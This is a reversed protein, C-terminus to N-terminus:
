LVTCYSVTCNNDVQIALNDLAVYGRYSDEGGQPGGAGTCDLVFLGSCYLGTFVTWKMGTCILVSPGNCYLGTLLDLM